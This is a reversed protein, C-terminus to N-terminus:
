VSKFMTAMLPIKKLDTLLLTPSTVDSFAFAYERGNSGWECLLTMRRRLSYITRLCRIDIIVLVNQHGPLSCGNTARVQVSSQLKKIVYETDVTCTVDHPVNIFLQNQTLPPHWILWCKFFLTKQSTVGHPEQLLRRKPPVYRMWWWPSLFGHFLFM